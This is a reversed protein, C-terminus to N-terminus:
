GGLQFVQVASGFTDFTQPTNNVAAELQITYSGAALGSVWIWGGQTSAFNALVGYDVNGSTTVGVLNARIFGVNGNNTNVRGTGVFPCYLNCARAISFSLASGTIVSFSTSTFSQTGGNGIGLSKMVRDGFVQDSDFVPAGTADTARFKWGATSALLAALNGMECRAIGNPDVAAFESQTLAWLTGRLGLINVSGTGSQFSGTLTQSLNLAAATIQLNNAAVRNSWTQVMNQIDTQNTVPISGAEIQQYQGDYTVSQCVLPGVYGAVAGTEPLPNRGPEWYRILAGGPQSGHIRGPHRENAIGLPPLGKLQVRTWTQDLTGLIGDAIATLTAQDTIGPASIPPDLARIGITAQSAGNVTAVVNASGGVPVGGVALVQNIRDQIDGGNTVREEYHVGGMFTYTAASGQSQFWVRGLEDCYWFWTPGAISRCTDLVQNVKQGRFDVQGGSTSVLPIGTTPPVSVQDCSCHQTLAVADRVAQAIDVGSNTSAAYVLQTAVRTLEFGFPTVVIEHKMGTASRTDPFSEIVGGYVFGPWPGGLETLRIVNGLALGLAPGTTALLNGNADKTAPEITIQDLGGNATTAKIPPRNLLGFTATAAPTVGDNLYAHALLPLAKSALPRTYTNLLPPGGLQIPHAGTWGLSGTFATPM